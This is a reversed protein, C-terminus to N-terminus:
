IDTVRCREQTPWLPDHSWVKPLPDRIYQSDIYVTFRILIGRTSATSYEGFMSFKTAVTPHESSFTSVGTVIPTPGMAVCSSPHYTSGNLCCRIGNYVRFGRRGNGVADIRKTGRQTSRALLWDLSLSIPGRGSSQKSLLACCSQLVATLSKLYFKYM